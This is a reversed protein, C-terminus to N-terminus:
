LCHLEKGLRVQLGVVSEVTRNIDERTIEPKVCLGEQNLRPLLGRCANDRVNYKVNDSHLITKGPRLKKPSSWLKANIKASRPDELNLKEFLFETGGVTVLLRLDDNWLGSENLSVHVPKLNSGEETTLNQNEPSNISSVDEDLDM